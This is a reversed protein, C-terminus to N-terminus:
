ANWREWWLQFLFLRITYLTYLRHKEQLVKDKYFRYIDNDLKKLTELGRKITGQYQPESIWKDIPPTFGQKGRHLISEPVIGKIINRMLKKTKRTDAKWEAPIKQGFELFRYDLFPSRVELACAMSARDVKTLFHDPLTNYLLDYIRLAEGLSGDSKKLSEQLKEESWAQFAPTLLADGELAKAYFLQKDHLSLEFAKKLTYASTFGDLKKKAPLKAGASRVFRPLKRLLEMRHGIVHSSYGGFIEDGGDGSLCVTVYKRALESVKHTPFGSYDAFPEDYIDAYQPILRDFDKCTFYEHHHKTVFAEKIIEMYKTEDYKGEFGISFTHLNKLETFHAMEAVVTSSDLGGSLFAGVPVDSIMRLRTADQLLARGEAILAKKNYVPAYDPLEYYYWQKVIRREKLDYIISQRAELKYVNKYITHPAPIFGLSFYLQVADPHIALKLKHTHLAKLESSFVFNKKDYYYYFPKKGTRDRSCFLEQKDKDYLAFAWMGNFRQVCDFGWELYSALVVETDAHSKFRYGKYELQSKIEQFNYIEGNFVIGATRKNHTYFMPQHGLKSLDIISLRVHGLSVHKDTYVGSDDPGRHQLVKNMARIRKTDNGLFGNIGCM